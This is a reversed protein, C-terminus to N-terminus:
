TNTKNATDVIGDNFFANSGNITIGGGCDINGYITATTGVSLSTNANLAKAWFNYYDAGTNNYLRCYSDSGTTLKWCQNILEGTNCIRLKEGNIYLVHGGSGTAFYQISGAAGAYTCTNGNIFIKTNTTYENINDKTGIISFDSTDNSIRLKEGDGVQLINLPNNTGIGVNGSNYFINFASTRWQSLTNSVFNLNGSSDISFQSSNFKLSITNATNLLPNSLTM